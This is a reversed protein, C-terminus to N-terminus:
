KPADDDADRKPETCRFQPVPVVRAGRRAGRLCNPIGNFAIKCENIMCSLRHGVFAIAAFPQQHKETERITRVNTRRRQVFNGLDHLIEAFLSRLHLGHNDESLELTGSRSRALPLGDHNVLFVVDDRGIADRFAGQAIQERWKGGIVTEQNFVAAYGEVAVTADDIARVEFSASQRSERNDM